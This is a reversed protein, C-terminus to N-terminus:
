RKLEWQTALAEDGNRATNNCNIGLYDRSDAEERVAMM